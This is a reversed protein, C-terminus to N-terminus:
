KLATNLISRIEKAKVTALAVMQEIDEVLLTGDGGKQMACITGDEETTITLRSDAIQFEEKTPDVLIAGGVKILTIPIPVSNVPLRDETRNKYDAKDGDLGPIRASKLAAIAALAGIDILVGDTNIPCIDVNVMWVLEGPRICLNKVDITKSERVGRDIVRALEIGESSPPGVEFDPNSIPSLEANVMLVGEEPTDGYPKGLQMKVGAIVETDGCRVQASGEATSVGNLSISIPRFEDLQRGDLRVGKELAAVIHEKSVYQM